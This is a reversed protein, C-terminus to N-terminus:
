NSPAPAPPEGSAPAPKREQNRRVVSEVENVAKKFSKFNLSGALVLMASYSQTDVVGWTNPLAYPNIAIAQGWGFGLVTGVLFSGVAGYSGLGFSANIWSTRSPTLNGVTMQPALGPLSTLNTSLGGLLSLDSAVFYEGGVAFNVVPNTPLTYTANLATTTPGTAALTTATGSVQTSFASSWGFDLSGDAELTLGPLKAGVGLGVRVPVPASFSGSGSTLTSQNTTGMAYSNDLVGSYSGLVHISPVQGSLGVTVSGFRYTAGLIATLDFSHGNGGAGLASQVAGGSVASTVSSGNLAFSDSTLVGHLSLGIALHDTAAISYSPGIHVRTFSEAISQVQTTTGGPTMGDYSLAPLNTSQSELTAFCIALKQRGQRMHVHLDAEFAEGSTTFFLCLTSPLANLGASSIGTGSLAVNGFAATDIPGSPQHWNSFHQDTFNFFNVSFAISSDQIDVITAPNMFPSAGDRGLAIGTNGMLATRGGTPASRDNGQARAVAPTLFLACALFASARL